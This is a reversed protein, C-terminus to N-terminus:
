PRIVTARLPDTSGAAIERWVQKTADLGAVPTVQLWSAAWAVLDDRAERYVTALVGEGQDRIVELERDGTNFATVSPGPGTVPPWSRLHSGGVAISAELQKGLRRHVAQAVDASGAIDVFVTPAFADILDIEDYTFIKAYTGFTGVASSHRASTLGIVDVGRNRLLRSLGAAVRSSASSIVVRKAGARVLDSALLAAFPYVPLMVADIDAEEDSVDATVELRTMRRYFALMGARPEDTTLLGLKTPTAHVAVHTAMPLYGTFRDGTTAVSSGREVVRAVGWVPVRGWGPTRAPFADWSSLVDDGLLVYSLNNASVSFREVALVLAGNQDQDPLQEITTRMDEFPNSRNVELVAASATPTDM